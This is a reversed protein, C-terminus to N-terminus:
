KKQFPKSGNEQMLVDGFAWGMRNPADIRVFTKHDDGYTGIFIDFTYPSYWSTNLRYRFGETEEDESYSAEIKNLTKEVFQKAQDPTKNPLEVAAGSAYISLNVSFAILICTIAKLM